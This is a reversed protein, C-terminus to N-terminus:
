NDNENEENIIVEAYAKKVEKDLKKSFADSSSRGKGRANIM